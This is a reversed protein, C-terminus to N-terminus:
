ITLVLYGQLFGVAGGLVGGVLILTLEDEEFIGRLVREFDDKPMNGLKDEVTNKVDMKDALYEELEPLAEPMKEMLRRTVIAQAKDFMEDTIEIPIMAKFKGVEGKIRTTVTEMIQKTMEASKEGEVLKSILIQPTLIEAEATEGYDRAIDKQRKAFLGQYTFLGFFYKTPEQPRFIMQLALWNTVLGVLVGVIPMLWWTQMVQWAGVQGLGIIFGFIGGYYEIFKFESKGIKKTLRALREVNEGSLQGFVIEHIDLVEEGESQVQEFVDGAITRTQLQVQSVIMTQVHEPLKEWTGAGGIEDAIEACTGSTEPDMHKAIIDELDKAQFRAALEESTILENAVMDAVSGAFKDGQKYLIGQWGLPGLGLFKRPYFIMKVAALNTIWGIIATVTPVTIFLILWQPM